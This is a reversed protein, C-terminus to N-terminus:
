RFPANWFDWMEGRWGDAVGRGRYSFAMAVADAPLKLHHKFKLDQFMTMFPATVITRSQLVEGEPNLFHIRLYFRELTTFGTTFSEEWRVNGSMELSDFTKSYRYLVEFESTAFRGSHPGGELLEIRDEPSVVLGRRGHLGGRCAALGFVLLLWLITSVAKLFKGQSKM